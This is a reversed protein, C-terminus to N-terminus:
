NINNIIENTNMLNKMKESDNNCSELLNQQTKTYILLIIMLFSFNYTFICFCQNINIDYTNNSINIYIIIYTIFIILLVTKYTSSFINNICNKNILDNNILDKTNNIFIPM